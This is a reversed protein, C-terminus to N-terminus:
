CWTMTPCTTVGCPFGPGKQQGGEFRWRGRSVAPRSETEVSNGMRIMQSYFGVRDPRAHDPLSDSRHIGSGGGWALDDGYRLRELQKSNEMLSGGCDRGQESAFFGYDLM